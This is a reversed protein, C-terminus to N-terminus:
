SGAPPSAGQISFKLTVTLIFPTPIGNLLLPRYIWQKVAAVAYEDFIPAGRLITVERVHGNAEVTAELIILAGLRAQRALDPYVPDVKKILQPAKLLGGV